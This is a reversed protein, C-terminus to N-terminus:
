LVAASTSCVRQSGGTKVREPNVYPKKKDKSPTTETKTEPDNDTLDPSEPQTFDLGLTNNDSM